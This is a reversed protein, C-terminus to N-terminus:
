EIQARGTAVAMSSGASRLMEKSIDQIFKTSVNGETHLKGMQDKLKEYNDEMAKELKDSQKTFADEKFRMLKKNYNAELENKQRQLKDELASVAKKEKMEYSEKAMDRQNLLDKIEIQAEKIENKMDDYDKKSIWM